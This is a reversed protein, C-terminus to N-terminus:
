AGSTGNFDAHSAGSKVSGNEANALVPLASAVLLGSLLAPRLFIDTARRTVHIPTQM